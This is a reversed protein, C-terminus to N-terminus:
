PELRETLIAMLQTRTQKLILIAEDIQERQIHMYEGLREQNEIAYSLDAMATNIIAVKSNM